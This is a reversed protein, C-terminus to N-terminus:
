GDPVPDAGLPEWYVDDGVAIAGDNLVVAFAGGGWNARMVGQLGPFVEDMQHCPKTEGAIRLRVTGVCLVRGRSDELPIGRVLLNARRVSPDLTTGIAEMHAEWREASLITIQRRGGQNANGVLGRDTRMSALLSPDMPGLKARKIWIRELTGPMHEIPPEPLISM